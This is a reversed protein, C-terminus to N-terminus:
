RALFVTMWNGDDTQPQEWLGRWVEGPSKFHFFAGGGSTWRKTLQINIRNSQDTQFINNAIFENPSTKLYMGTDNGVIVNRAIENGSSEETLHFGRQSGTVTNNFIYNEYSKIYVGTQNNTLENDYFWNRFAETYLYIGYQSTDVIKNNYIANDTSRKNLRVGRQNAVIENEYVLNKASRWLAIGDRNGSTFNGYISNSNSDRDLMIGHLANDISRNNRIVNNVCRRSFIIGHNGNDHVYNNEVIFNNSDDHPDLGYSKNHSFESNRVIMGTAGFTYFGIYNDHVYSDVVYGTALEEGFRSANEIRWALGYVGGGSAATLPQGLHSVEAGVVDMRANNVRIHSRGDEVDYDFDNTNTDWSTIRSGSIYINGSDGFIRVTDSPDSKLKLWAVGPKEILLTTHRKLELNTKLLYIGNGEYALLSEDGIADHIAPIDVVQSWGSVTIRNSEPRYRISLESAEAPGSANSLPQMLATRYAEPEMFPLQIQVTAGVKWEGDPATIAAPDVGYKRALREPTDGEGLLYSTKGTNVDIAGMSQVPAERPMTHLVAEEYNYDPLREETRYILPDFTSALLLQQNYSFNIVSALLFVVVGTVAYGAIMRLRGMQKMRGEDWRTIWGQQNMTFFAYIRQLAFFYSFIIYAPLVIISSRRRQLHGWLKVTRSILWWALLIITTFYQQYYISLIFYTPAILTTVPQVLRDLLQFALAPRRWLWGSFIAKLDARWSNRSWRLRQRLFTSMNTAGPTYVRANGQYRVKWGAGQVLHTLSKDDGSIVQQGMFRENVLKDLLPLVAERRYVATRGSICTLADGAAALFRIEDLYRLDLYVDFLRQALSSPNLVNQRPGVGGVEPDLFPTVVKTLVDEEWVTDSDVLAVIDCSAALMGDALAPRKGPKRTVILKASPFIKAFENFERICDEDTYDIVAIIEDPGNRAWSELARRFLEPEENYVPVVVSTTLGSNIPEQPRYRAGILKRMLWVGWRWAGIIGVPILLIILNGVNGLQSILQLVTELLQRFESSLQDPM